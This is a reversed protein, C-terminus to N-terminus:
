RAAGRVQDLPEAHVPALDGEHAVPAAAHRHAGSAGACGAQLDHRHPAGRAARRPDAPRVGRLHRLDGLRGPGPGDDIEALRQRTQTVLADVQSREFAITAGEPDHEDDANTDLSAAVIAEFDDTLM